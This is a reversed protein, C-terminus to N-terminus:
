PTNPCEWLQEASFQTVPRGGLKRLINLTALRWPEGLSWSKCNGPGLITVTDCYQMAMDYIEQIATESPTTDKRGAKSVCENSTWSILLIRMISPSPQAHAGRDRSERRLHDRLRPLAAGNKTIRTFGIELEKMCSTERGGKRGIDWSAADGILDGIKVTNSEGKGISMSSDSLLIVEIRKIPQISPFRKRCLAEQLM